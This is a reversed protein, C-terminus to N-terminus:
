NTQKFKDAMSPNNKRMDKMAEAEENAPPKRTEDKVPGEDPVSADCGMAALMVAVAGMRQIWRKM